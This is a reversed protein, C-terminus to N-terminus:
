KCTWASVRCAAACFNLLAKETGRLYGRFIATDRPIRTFVLVDLPWNLYHCLAAAQTITHRKTLDRNQYSEPVCLWFLVSFLSFTVIEVLYRYFDNSKQDSHRSKFERGRSGWDLASGVAGCGTMSKLRSLIACRAKSQLYWFWFIEFLHKQWPFRSEKKVAFEIIRCLKPKHFRAQCLLFACHKLFLTIYSEFHAPLLHYMQLSLLFLYFVRDFYDYFWQSLATSFATSLTFLEKYFSM